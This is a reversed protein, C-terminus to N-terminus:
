PAVARGRAYRLRSHGEPDRELWALHLTGADDLFLAPDSQAGPGSAVAPAVNEAFGASTPWSLWIDASGDREDDWAIALQGLRNGAVAAHWQAIADGFSDQIKLNVGFQGGGDASFAGYVDYGSLFDRKDLWVAAMRHDGYAALAPRMAGTGRGLDNAAKGTPNLSIRLPASWVAGDLSRSAYVVTHGLRRDEWVLAVGDQGRALVPYLQDDALAAPDIPLRPGPRLDSGRMELRSLWVRRWRGESQSWAAVLGVGAHWAISAQGGTPALSASQGAHVADALAAKVGTDEEWILAFRGGDLPAIAPAYCEGQGLSRESFADQEPRKIALYCRPMGTRDDEWVIGVTGGSVALAKRGSADLHQFVKGAPAAVDLAPDFRWQAQTQGVLLLLALHGLWKVQAIGPILDSSCVDSSWDCDLM